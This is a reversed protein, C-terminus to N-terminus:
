VSPLKGSRMEIHEKKLKAVWELFADITWPQPSPLQAVALVYKCKRYQKVKFSQKVKITKSAMTEDIAQDIQKFWQERKDIIEPTKVKWPPWIDEPMPHAEIAMSEAISYEEVKIDTVDFTVYQSGIALTFDIGGIRNGGFYDDTADFNHYTFVSSGDPLKGVCPALSLTKLKYRKASAIISDKHKCKM